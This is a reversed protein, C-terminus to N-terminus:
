ILYIVIIAVWLRDWSIIFYEKFLGRRKNWLSTRSGSQQRARQFLTGCREQVPDVLCALMMRRGVVTAVQKQGHGDNHELPYGQNNLTNFLEPEMKWRGRGGRMGQYVKNRRLEIETIWSVKSEKGARMEWDDLYNGLRDPPSQNFPLGKM